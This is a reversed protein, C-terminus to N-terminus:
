KQFLIIGKKKEEIQVNRKLLSISKNKTKEILLYSSPTKTFYITKSSEYTYLQKNM